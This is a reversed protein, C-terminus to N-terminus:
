YADSMNSAWQKDNPASVGAANGASRLDCFSNDRNWASGNILDSIELMARPTPLQAAFELQYTNGGM